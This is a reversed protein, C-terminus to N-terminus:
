CLQDFTDKDWDSFKDLALLHKDAEIQEYLCFKIDRLDPNFTAM